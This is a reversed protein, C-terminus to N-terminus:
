VSSSLGCSVLCRIASCCIAILHDLLLASTDLVPWFMRTKADILSPLISQKATKRSGQHVPWSELGTQLARGGREEMTLAVCVRKGNPSRTRRPLRCFRIALHSIALLPKSDQHIDFSLIGQHDAQTGLVRTLHPVHAQERPDSM